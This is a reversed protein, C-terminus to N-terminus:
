KLWRAKIEKFNGRSVPVTDGNILKLSYKGGPFVDLSTIKTMKVIYSKHVREYRADLISELNALSKDCVEVIGNSLSIKSYHGYAEFYIVDEEKIMELKNRKKVAFYKVRRDDFNNKSNIRDFAKKLRKETFPKPVFDLVGYEFAEIAKEVHASIVIVHFSNSLILKLIEFGDKGSLNLDLLLLDIENESIYSMASNISTCIPTEINGNPLVRKILKSLHRAIHIEDEVILINM